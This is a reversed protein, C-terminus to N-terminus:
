EGVKEVTISPREGKKGRTIKVTDGTKFIGTEEDFKAVASSNSITYQKIGYPTDFEFVWAEGFQTMAKQYKGTWTVEVTEGYDLKMWNSKTRAWTSLDGM